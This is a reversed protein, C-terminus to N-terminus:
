THGAVRALLADVDRPATDGAWSLYQDPRVLVLRAEFLERGDAYSDRVLKLPLRRRQAAAELARVRAFGRTTSKEVPVHRGM